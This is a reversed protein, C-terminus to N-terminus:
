NGAPRAAPAPLRPPTLREHDGNDPTRTDIYKLAKGYATRGPKEWHVASGDMAKLLEETPAGALTFSLDVSEAAALKPLKWVIVDGSTDAPPRPTAGEENPHTALALAPLLGLSALTQTGKYGPGTGSVVKTGAPVRVFVTLGEADVGVNKIGRNAVTVKYTTNGGSQEAITIPAPANGPNFGTKIAGISARVGLDEVMFKYIARLNGESLRDPSYNGMLSQTPWKATHTYIVKKFLDFNLQKAYEGLWMRGMKNEPEHCQGCGTIQMYVRQEYPASAVAAPWHWHGLEKAPPKSKMFAYIGDIQADSLQAETYALMVGWPKRLAQRFQEPTLGRAGALDPGFGGEGNEGHCFYCLKGRFAAQGVKPDGQAAAMAPALSLVSLAVFLRLTM